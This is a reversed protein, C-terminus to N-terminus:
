VKTVTLTIVPTTFGAVTQSIRVKFSVESGFDTVLDANLYTYVNTTLAVTKM